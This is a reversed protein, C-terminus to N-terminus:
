RVQFLSSTIHDTIFKGKQTLTYSSASRRVHVGVFSKIKSLFYEFHDPFLTKIQNPNIGEMTRLRTMVYENYRETTSLHEVEYVKKNQQILKIYKQNNAINWHRSIGNYSHAGPGLGLYPLGKWYNSNHIARQEPLAYNSIEYHEYGQHDLTEMVISMQANAVEEPVPIYKGVKAQYGLATKPEITMGYASIHPIAYKKVLSLNEELEAITLGAFGFILDITLNEFGAKQAWEISSISQKANHSRNMWTLHHEHFSQVGISLRNIGLRKWDNLKELTVDDPNCELTIEETALNFNSELQILISELLASDLISPTGGGFYITTVPEKLYGRQRSIETEISQVVTDVSGLSTSFHFNCYHCAKKCFPIHLYIGAM